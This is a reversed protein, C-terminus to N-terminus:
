AEGEPDPDTVTFYALSGGGRLPYPAVVGRQGIRVRAAPRDLVNTVLSPGSDLQVLAVVYPVLAAFAPSYARHYVCFSWIHGTGPDTVWDGDPSLCEPCLPAPPFRRYGCSACRQLVLEGGAGRRRLEALPAEDPGAEALVRAGAALLEDV